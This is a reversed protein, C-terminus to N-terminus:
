CEEFRILRSCEEVSGDDFVSADAVGCITTDVFVTVNASRGKLLLLPLLFAYSCVGGGEGPAEVSIFISKVFTFSSITAPTKSCSLLVPFRGCRMLSSAETKDM